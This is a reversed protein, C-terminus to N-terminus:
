RRFTTECLVADVPSYRRRNTRQIRSDHRLAVAPGFRSGALSQYCRRNHHQEANGTRRNKEVGVAVSAFGRLIENRSPALADDLFLILPSSYTMAVDLHGRSAQISEGYYALLINELAVHVVVLGAEKGVHRAMTTKGTCGLPGTFLVAARPPQRCVRQADAKAIKTTSKSEQATARLRACNKACNRLVVAISPLADTPRYVHCGMDALEALACSKKRGQRARRLVATVPSLEAPVLAGKKTIEFGKEGYLGSIRIKIKDLLGETQFLNENLAQISLFSKEFTHIRWNELHRKAIAIM